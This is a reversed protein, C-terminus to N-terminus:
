VDWPPSHIAAGQMLVHGATRNDWSLSQTVRIKLLDIDKGRRKSEKRGKSSENNRFLLLPQMEVSRPTHVPEALGLQQYSCLPAGVQGAFGGYGELSGLTGLPSTLCPGSARGAAFSVDPLAWTLILWQPKPTKGCDSDADLGGSSDASMVVSGWVACRAQRSTQAEAERIVVWLHTRARMWGKEPAGPMLAVNSIDLTHSARPTLPLFTHEDPQENPPLDM